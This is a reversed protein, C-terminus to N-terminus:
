WGEVGKIVYFAIAAIVLLWLITINIKQSLKLSSHKKGQFLESQELKDREADANALAKQLHKKM